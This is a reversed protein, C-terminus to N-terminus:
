LFSAKSPKIDFIHEVHIDIWAELVVYILSSSRKDIEKCVRICEIKISETYM